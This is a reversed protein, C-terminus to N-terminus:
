AKRLTGEGGQPTPVGVLLCRHRQETELSWDSTLTAPLFAPREPAICGRWDGYRLEAEGQLPVLQLFSGQPVEATWVASQAQTGQLDLTWASFYPWRIPDDILKSLSSHQRRDLIQPRCRFAEVPQAEFDLCDVFAQLQETSTGSEPDGKRFVVRGEQFVLPTYIDMFSFTTNSTQQPEAILIQDGYSFPLWAENKPPGLNRERSRQLEPLSKEALAQLAEATAGSKASDLIHRWLEQLVPRAQDLPHTQHSLGFIAHAMGAHSLLLNGSEDKLDVENLTAILRERNARLNEVCHWLGNEGTKPPAPSLLALLRDVLVDDNPDAAWAIAAKEEAWNEYVARCRHFGAQDRIGGDVLFQRYRGIWQQEQELWSRFVAKFDQGEYAQLSQPRFGMHVKAPFRSCLFKNFIPLGEGFLLRSWAGLSEPHKDIAEALTTQPQDLFTVQGGEQTSTLWAEACTASDGVVEEGFLKKLATGGWAYDQFKPQLLHPTQLFTSKM